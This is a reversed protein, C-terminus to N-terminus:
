SGSVPRPSPARPKPQDVNITSSSQARCVRHVLVWAGVILLVDGVSFVNAHPVWAPVAFVDGLFGASEAVSSNSYGAPDAPLGALRLAGESAPMVGGNAAIAATNLAGGAAIFPMGPVQLNAAMVVGLVAYSVVNIAEHLSHSGAPFVNVILIQVAFAGVVVPVGKLRLETLASLRGGRLPVSAFALLLMVGILVDRADAAIARPSSGEPRLTSVTARVSL